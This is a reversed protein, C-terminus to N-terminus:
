AAYDVDPSAIFWVHDHDRAVCPPCACQCPTVPRFCHIPPLDLRTYQTWPGQWRGLYLESERTTIKDLHRSKSVEM